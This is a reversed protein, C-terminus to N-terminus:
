LLSPSELDVWLAAHVDTSPKLHPTVFKKLRRVMWSGGWGGISVVVDQIEQPQFLGRNIQKDTNHITMYM